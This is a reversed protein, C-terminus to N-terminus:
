TSLSKVGKKTSKFWLSFSESTLGGKAEGMAGFSLRECLRLTEKRKYVRMMVCRQSIKKDM